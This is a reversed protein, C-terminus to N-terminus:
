DTEKRSMGMEMWRRTIRDATQEDLEIGWVRGGGRIRACVEDDAVAGLLRAEAEEEDCKALRATYEVAEEWIPFMGQERRYLWVAEAVLRETPDGFLRARDDISM